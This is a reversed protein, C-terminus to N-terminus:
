MFKKIKCHTLHVPRILPIHISDTRTCPDSDCPQMKSEFLIGENASLTRIQIPDCYRTKRAPGPTLPNQQIVPMTTNTNFTWIAIQTCFCATTSKLCSVQHVMGLTQRIFSCSHDISTSHILPCLQSCSTWSLSFTAISDM